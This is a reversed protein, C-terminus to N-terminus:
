LPKRALNTHLMKILLNGDLAYGVLLNIIAHNYKIELTKHSSKKVYVMIKMKVYRILNSVIIKLFHTGDLLM